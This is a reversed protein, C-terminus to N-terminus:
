SQFKWSSKEHSDVDPAVRRVNRLFGCGFDCVAFEARDAYVQLASYGRGSAHAAVNDHLEGILRRLPEASAHEELTMTTQLISTVLKTCGEVEDTRALSTLPSM